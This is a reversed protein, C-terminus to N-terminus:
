SGAARRRVAEALDHWPGELRSEPLRAARENARLDYVFRDPVGDADLDADWPCAEVLPWWAPADDEGVEVTWERRLGAVGGTRVVTVVLVPETV